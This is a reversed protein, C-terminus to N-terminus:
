ANGYKQHILYLLKRVWVVPKFSIFKLYFKETLSRKPVPRSAEYKIAEQYQIEARTFQKANRSDTIAQKSKRRKPNGLM